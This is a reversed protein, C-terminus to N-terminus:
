RSGGSASQARALLRDVAHPDFGSTHDMWELSVVPLRLNKTTEPKAPPAVYIGWARLPCKEESALAIQLAVGLRDRVWDWSVSGYFIILIAARKLSAAFLAENNEPEDDQQNYLVKVQRQGLYKGLEFAHVQDKIHTDILTAAGSVPGGSSRRSRIQDVSALIQRTMASSLERQFHYSSQPSRPGHELRDLFGAYSSDQISDRALDPPVLILQSKGHALALEAQRQPYYVGDRDIVEHGPNGDLVHVSLDAASAEARVAAEHAEFELPPPVRAALRVGDADGLEKVIRRRIGGATDSTEAVYVVVQSGDDTRPSERPASGEKLQSLTHYIANTLVRLQQRFRDSRPDAPEGDVDSEVADHFAFGEARGYETPWQPPAIKNMLLNFIRSRDGVALGAPEQQSKQHFWKLEQLCYDSRLYGPSTLAVFLASSQIADQITRDFLQSGDIRRADRWVSVTDEGIKRSLAVSLHRHFQTVWGNKEADDDVTKNDIRAYSIFVDYQFGPVWSM